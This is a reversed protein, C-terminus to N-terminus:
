TSASISNETDDVTHFFNKINIDPLAEGVSIFFCLLHKTKTTIKKRDMYVRQVHKTLKIIIFFFPEARQLKRERKTVNNIM